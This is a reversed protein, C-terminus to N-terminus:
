DSAFTSFNFEGLPSGAILVEGILWSGSVGFRWQGPTTQLWRLEGRDVRRVIGRGRSVPGEYRLYARRHPPLLEASGVPTELPNDALRWTLLREMGPSEALLDWHVGLSLRHELLAFRM